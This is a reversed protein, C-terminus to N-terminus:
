HRHGDDFGQFVLEPSICELLGIVINGAGGIQSDIHHGGDEFDVHLLANGMEFFNRSVGCIEGNQSLKLGLYLDENPKTDFFVLKPQEKLTSRFSNEQNNKDKPKILELEKQLELKSSKKKRRQDSLSNRRLKLCSDGDDRVFNPNFFAGQHMGESVKSFGYIYLQRTFSKLKSQRFYIPMIDRCFTKPKHIRFAKGNLIWSVVDEHGETEADELLHYLKTPFPLNKNATSIM